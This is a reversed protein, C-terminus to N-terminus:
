SVAHYILFIWLGDVLFTVVEYFVVRIQKIVIKKIRDLNKTLNKKSNM